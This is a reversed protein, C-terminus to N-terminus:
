RYGNEATSRQNQTVLFGRSLFHALFLFPQLGNYPSSGKLALMRGRCHALPFLLVAGIWFDVLYNVPLDNVPPEQTEDLNSLSLPSFTKGTQPQNRRLGTKNRFLLNYIEDDIAYSFFSRVGLLM